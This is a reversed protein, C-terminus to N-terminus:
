LSKSTVRKAQMLKGVEEIVALYIDVDSELYEMDGGLVCNTILLKNLADIDEDKGYQTIAPLLNKTPKCIVFKACEGDMNDDLPINIEKLRGKTKKWESIDTKTIDKYKNKKEAM